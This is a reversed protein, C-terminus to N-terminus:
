SLYFYLNFIIKRLEGNEDSADPCEKHGNLVWLPPICHNGSTCNFTTKTCPAGNGAPYFCIKKFNEFCFVKM